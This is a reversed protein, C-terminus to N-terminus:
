FWTDGKWIANENLHFAEQLRQLIQMQYVCCVTMLNYVILRFNSHVVSFCNFYVM